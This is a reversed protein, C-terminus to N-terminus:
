KTLYDFIELIISNPLNREKSIRDKLSEPQDGTSRFHIIKSDKSYTLSSVSSENNDKISFLGSSYKLTECLAPTEIHRSQIELMVQRWRDIFKKGKDNNVVFWSAIHTLYYGENIIDTDNRCVQIDCNKLFEDTFDKVVYTDSDMMVVPYNEEKCITQLGITKHDIAERWGASWVQDDGGSEATKIFDLKPHIELLVEKQNKSLGLDNIIIKNLKNEPFNNKISHLFIKGFSFYHKSLTTYITVKREKQIDYNTFYTYEFNQTEMSALQKLFPCKEKIAEKKSTGILCKKNEKEIRNILNISDESDSINNLILYDFNSFDFSKIEQTHIYSYWSILKELYSENPQLAEIDLGLLSEGYNGNTTGVDLIKFNKRGKSLERIHQVCENKYFDCIMHKEKKFDNKYTNLLDNTKFNKVADIDQGSVEYDYGHAELKEKVERKEQDNLNMWELRIIKPTYKNLDLQRFIECDFGEADCLFIDFNEINYKKFLTDLTIGNVTIKKGYKDLVYKNDEAALGNKPPWVASMGGFDNRLEGNDIYHNDITVMEVPGDASVIASNEFINTNPRNNKLREFLYPIPEVYLARWHPYIDFYNVVDDFSVGDMAGIQVVLTDEGSEGVKHLAKEIM